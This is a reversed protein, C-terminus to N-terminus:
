YKVSPVGEWKENSERNTELNAGRERGEEGVRERERMRVEAKVTKWDRKIHMSVGIECM